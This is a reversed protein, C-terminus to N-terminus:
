EVAFCKFVSIAKVPCHQRASYQLPGGNLILWCHLQLGSSCNDVIIFMKLKGESINAAMQFIIGSQDGFDTFYTFGNFDWHNLIEEFSSLLFRDFLSFKLCQLPSRTLQPNPLRSHRAIPPRAISAIPPCHHCHTPVIIPLPHLCDNRHPIWQKEGRTVKEAGCGEKPLTRLLTHHLSLPPPPRPKIGMIQDRSEWIGPQQCWPPLSWHSWTTFTVGWHWCLSPTPNTCNTTFTVSDFYLESFPLIILINDFKLDPWAQLYIMISVHMCYNFCLNSDVIM